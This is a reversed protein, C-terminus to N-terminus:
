GGIVAELGPTFAVGGAAGADLMLAQLYFRAGCLDFADPIAIPLLFAQTPVTIPAVTSPDVLLTGFVPTPITAAQVGLVLLGTTVQGTGNQVALLPQTGIAPQGVLAIGPVQGFSGPFGPGYNSWSAPDCRDRVFTDITNNTDNAVLNAARSAFVARRGNASIAAVWASSDASQGATNASLLEFAGTAADFLYADPFPDVDATAYSEFSQFGVYRGNASVVPDYCDGNGGGAGPTSIWRLSGSAVDFAYIDKRYNDQDFPDLPMVTEFVVTSGDASIRPNRADWIQGGVENVIRATGAVRDRLVIRVANVPMGMPAYSECVVFRGDGSVDVNQGGAPIGTLEVSVCEIQQTQRDFLFADLIGDTDNAVLNNSYSYFGVFRGDASISPYASIGNGGVGAGDVSVHELAGTALDKVFVDTLAGNGDSAALNDAWSTFAVCRGDASLKPQFCMDNPQVGTATLSARITIGTNLERIYVDDTGNTDGPVLAAATTFAVVRGDASLDHWASGEVLQAGTPSLSVRETSQALLATAPLLLPLLALPKM